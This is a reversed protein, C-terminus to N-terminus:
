YWNTRQSHAWANAPNGYRGLIYNIGWNIQDQPNRSQSQPGHMPMAQAIGFAGSPNRANPNWGSEKNWLRVLAQFNNNDTIGRAALQQRAYEQLANPSATSPGGGGTARRQVAKARSQGVSETLRRDSERMQRMFDYPDRKEVM